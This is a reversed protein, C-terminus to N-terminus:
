LSIQETRATSSAMSVSARSGGSWEVGSWEAMDGTGGEV